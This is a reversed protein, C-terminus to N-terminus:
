YFVLMLWNVAVTLAMFYNKKKLPIQYQKNRELLCTISNKRQTKFIITSTVVWFIWTKLVHM